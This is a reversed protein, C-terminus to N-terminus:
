EKVHTFKVILKKNDLMWRLLKEFNINEVKMHGTIGVFSASWMANKYDQQKFQTSVYFRDLVNIHYQVDGTYKWGASVQQTLVGNPGESMEGLYEFTPEAKARIEMRTVELGVAQIEYEIETRLDLMWEPVDKELDEGIKLYEIAVSM